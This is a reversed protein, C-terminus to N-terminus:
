WTMVIGDIYGDGQMDRSAIPTTRHCLRQGAFIGLEGTRLVESFLIDGTINGVEALGGAVNHRAVMLVGIANADSIGASEAEDSYGDDAKCTIRTARLRLTTRPPPETYKVFM